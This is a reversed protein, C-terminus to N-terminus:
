GEGPCLGNGDPEPKRNPVGSGVGGDTRRGGVVVVCNTRLGDLSECM